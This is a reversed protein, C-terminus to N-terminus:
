SNLLAICKDIERVYSNIKMRTNKIDDSSVDVTKSINILKIKEQLSAIEIEKANLKEFLQNKETDLDFKIKKLETYSEVLKSVKLEISSLTNNISMIVVFKINKFDFEASKIGRKKLL